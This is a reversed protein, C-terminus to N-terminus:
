RLAERVSRRSLFIGLGELVLAAPVLVTRGLQSDLVERLIPMTVALYLALAPVVVALLRVQARAGGARARVEADLREEFELRDAVSQVLGVVRERPLRQAVGLALTQMASATRGDAAAAARALAEDLPAGSGFERLAAAFPARAIPDESADVARRLSEPLALGSRLAAEVARVLATTALRARDRAAEAKVRVWFSPVAAAAAALAIPLDLSAGVLLSAGVILARLAEWARLGWRWRIDALPIADPHAVSWGLPARAALPLLALSVM